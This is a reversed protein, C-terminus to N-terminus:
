LRALTLLLSSPFPLHVAPRCLFPHHIGSFAIISYVTFKHARDAWGRGRIVFRDWTTIQAERERLRAQRLRAVKEAPTEAPPASGKAAKKPNIPAPPTRANPNYRANPNPRPTSSATSASPSARTIPTPRAYAHPSTATFRTADAASRSMTYQILQLIPTSPRKHALQFSQTHTFSTSLLPSSPSFNPATIIRPIVLM